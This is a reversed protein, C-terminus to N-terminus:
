RLLPLFSVRLHLVIRCPCTFEETGIWVVLFHLIFIFFTAMSSFLFGNVSAIQKSLADIWIVCCWFFHFTWSFYLFTFIWVCFFNFWHLLEWINIKHLWGGPSLLYGDCKCTTFGRADVPLSTEQITQVKKAQMKNIVRINNQNQRKPVNTIRARMGTSRRHFGRCTANFSPSAVSTM